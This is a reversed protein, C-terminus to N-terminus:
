ITAPELQFTNTLFPCYLCSTMELCKNRCMGYDCSYGYVSDLWRPEQQQRKSNSIRETEIERSRTYVGCFSIVFWYTSLLLRTYFQERERGRGKNVGHTVSLSLTTSSLFYMLRRGVDPFVISWVTTAKSKVGCWGRRAEESLAVHVCMYVYYTAGYVCVQELLLLM